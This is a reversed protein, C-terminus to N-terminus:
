RCSSRPPARSARVAAAAAAAAPSSRLLGEPGASAGGHAADARRLAARSRDAAQARSIHQEVRQRPAYLAVSLPRLLSLFRFMAAPKRRAGSKQPRVACMAPGCSHRPAQQNQVDDTVTQPARGRCASGSIRAVKRQKQRAGGGSSTIRLVGGREACDPGGPFADLAPLPSLSAADQIANHCPRTALKVEEEEEAAAEGGAPPACNVVDLLWDAPNSLALCEYGLASFYALVGTTGADSGDLRLRVPGFYVTRGDALLLLNDFVALLSARPQHITCLSTTGDAAARSMRRLM